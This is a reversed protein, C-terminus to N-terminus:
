LHWCFDTLWGWVEAKGGISAIPETQALVFTLFVYYEGEVHKIECAQSCVLSGVEPPCISPEFLLTGLHQAYATVTLVGM